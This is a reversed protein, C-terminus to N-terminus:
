CIHFHFLCPRDSPLAFHGHHATNNLSNEYLRLLSPMKFDIFFCVLAASHWYKRFDVLTYKCPDSVVADVSLCNIHHCSWDLRPRTRTPPMDLSPM